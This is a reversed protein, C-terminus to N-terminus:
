QLHTSQSSTAKLTNREKVTTVVFLYKTAVEKTLNCDM